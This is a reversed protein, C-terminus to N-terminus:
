SRSRRTCRGRARPGGRRRSRRTTRARSRGRPRATSRSARRGASRRRRRRGPALDDLELDRLAGIRGDDAAREALRADGLVRADERQDAARRHRKRAAVVDDRLAVPDDHDARRARGAGPARQEGRALAPDLVDDDEAAALDSRRDGPRQGLLADADPQDLGPELACPLDGLLQRLAADVVGGADVGVEDLPLPDPSRLRGHERDALVRHVVVRRRQRADVADPERDGDDM